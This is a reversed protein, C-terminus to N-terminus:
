ELNATISKMLEHTSDSPSCLPPRCIAQMMGAACLAAKSPLPNAEVFAARHADLLGYHIKRALEFDKALAADNFKKLMAPAFNATVSITGVGGCAMIALNLADDGSLVDFGAPAKRIIEMIQDLNGSAEKIAVINETKALELTTEALMNSGTRGPVNYLVLPLKTAAAAAKFHEIMGRQPPKNYYPSVVLVVDAGFEAAMATLEVTANTSNSGTGFMIPVRTGVQKKVATMLTKKEDFSLTAAEGTTGCVLIGDTGAKLHMAVLREVAAFDISLDPNFPTVLAVWSGKKVTKTM